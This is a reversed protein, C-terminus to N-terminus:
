PVQTVFFSYVAGLGRELVTSDVERGPLGLKVCLRCPLSIGVPILSPIQMAGEAMQTRGSMFRSGQERRGLPLERPVPVESM